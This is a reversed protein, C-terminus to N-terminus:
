AMVALNLGHPVLPAFDATNFTALQAGCRIATAAIMCDILTGRRRGSRNFLHSSLRADEPLFPEKWELLSDACLYSEPSLPGCLFETWVVASVGIRGGDDVWKRFCTDATGGREALGILVNTDLMIM